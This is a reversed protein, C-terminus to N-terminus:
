AGLIKIRQNHNPKAHQNGKQIVEGLPLSTAQWKKKDM